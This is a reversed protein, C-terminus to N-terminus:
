DAEQLKAHIEEWKKEFAAQAKAHQKTLKKTKAQLEKLKDRAEEVTECQFEELIQELIQAKRGEAKAVSLRLGEVESRLKSFKHQDM